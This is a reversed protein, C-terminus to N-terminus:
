VSRVGFRCARDQPRARCGSEAWLGETAAARPPAAASLAGCRRRGAAGTRGRDYPPAPRRRHDCAPGAPSWPAQHRARTRRSRATARRATPDSCPAPASRGSCRARRREHCRPPRRGSRWGRARPRRDTSAAPRGPHPQACAAPHQTQLGEVRCRPKQLVEPQKGEDRGPRESSSLPNSTDAAQSCTPAWRRTIAAARCSPRSSSSTTTRTPCAAERPAATARRPASARRPAGGRPWARRGRRRAQWVVEFTPVRLRRARGRPALTGRASTQQDIETAGM